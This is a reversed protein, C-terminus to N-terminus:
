AAREPEKPNGPLETPLSDLRCHLLDPNSEQTPFIHQLLSLSGVGTNKPKGPPEAPLSDMQLHLLGINLGQTPFIGRLLSLSGVGTNQDPSNWPSSLGNPRLSDSVVSCRESESLNRLPIRRSGEWFRMVLPGSGRRLPSAWYTPEATMRILWLSRTWSIISSSFKLEEILPAKSEGLFCFTHSWSLFIGQHEPSHCLFHLFGFCLFTLVGLLPSHKLHLCDSHPLLVHSKLGCAMLDGLPPGISGSALVGGWVWRSLIESPPYSGAESATYLHRLSNKYM